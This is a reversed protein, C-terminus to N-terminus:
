ENIIIGFQNNKRDIVIISNEFIVNGTIGYLYKGLISIINLRDYGTVQVKGLDIDGIFLNPNKNKLTKAKYIVELKGWSYVSDIPEIERKHALRKLRRTSTLVQSSSSGTDFFLRIKKQGLKFPLIIPFHKLDANEIFKVEKELEDPLETALAIRDNKYDIILIYDDLIDYGITGIVPMTEPLTDHGMNKMVHLKDKELLVGENLGLVANEYYCNGKKTLKLRSKIDPSEESLAILTKYYFMSVNAGLDLQMKAYQDVDKVYVPIYMATKKTEGNKLTDLSWIMPTYYISDNKISVSEFSSTSAKKRLVGCSSFLLTCTILVIIRNLNFTIKM